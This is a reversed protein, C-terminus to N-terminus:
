ASMEGGSSHNQVATFLLFFVLINIIFHLLFGDPHSFLRTLVPQQTLPVFIQLICIM